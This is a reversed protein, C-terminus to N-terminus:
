CSLCKFCLIANFCVKWDFLKECGLLSLSSRKQKIFTAKDSINLSFYNVFVRVFSNSNKKCVWNEIEQKRNLVSLWFSSWFLKFLYLLPSKKVITDNFVFSIIGMVLCSNLRLRSVRLSITPKWFVLAENQEYLYLYDGM